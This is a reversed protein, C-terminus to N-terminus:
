IHSFKRLNFSWDGFVNPNTVEGWGVVRSVYVPVNVIKKCLFM